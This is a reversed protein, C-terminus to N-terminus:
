VERPEDGDEDDREDDDETEDDETEDNLRGSTDDHPWGVPIRQKLSWWVGFYGLAAAPMSLYQGMTFMSTEPDLTQYAKFYEVFFRGTFYVAFFTAILLGRPRKEKGAARDVVYLVGLVLLGLAVEYLQSPHRYVLPGEHFRPFKVGWTQDTPRGVIESNLFNGVRVLTAGLAASFSFRDAGEIFPIDRRKTYVWMAVILGITAGHSALGGTWIEFVWMPDRLAHDLDYFLVHGLRAGVLVGLVGYVIFDSSDREDGGGRRIQWNLLAYGGLFVGMFLVSYYRLEFPATKMLRVAAAAALTILGWLITDNQKRRAGNVLSVVGFIALIAALVNVPVRAFVPDIDWTFKPM